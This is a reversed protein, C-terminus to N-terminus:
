LLRPDDRDRGTRECGVLRAAGLAATAHPVVPERLPVGLRRVVLAAIAGAVADDPRGLGGLGFLRVLCLLCLLGFRRLRQALFRLLDRESRPTSSLGSRDSLSFAGPPVQRGPGERRVEVASASQM